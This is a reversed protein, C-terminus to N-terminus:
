SEVPIGLEKRLLDLKSLAVRLLDRQSENLLKPNTGHALHNKDHYELTLIAELTDLEDFVFNLLHATKKIDPCSSLHLAAQVAEQACRTIGERLFEMGPFSDEDGLHAKEHTDGGVAHFDGRPSVMLVLKVYGNERDENQSM